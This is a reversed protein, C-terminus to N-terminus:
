RSKRQPRATQAAPKHAGEGKERYSLSELGDALRPRGFGAIRAPSRGSEPKQAQELRKDESFALPERWVHGDKPRKPASKATGGDWGSPKLLSRERGWFGRHPEATMRCPRAVPCRGLVAWPRHKPKTTYCINASAVADARNKRPPPSDAGGVEPRMASLRRHAFSFDLPCPSRPSRAM